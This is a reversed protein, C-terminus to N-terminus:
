APEHERLSHDKEPMKGPEVYRAAFWELLMRHIFIYGGGVKRLLIRDAAYNLFRVYNFPASGNCVIALRLVLHKLCAEGGAPLGLGLGGSLGCCLGAVLGGGLGGAMAGGLGGVMAGGLGGVLGSVLGVVLGGGLGIGLGVVLANRASRRIGQNPVTRTEIESVSLRSEQRVFVGVAVGGVMGSLLGFSVGGVWGGILVGSIAANLGIALMITMAWILYFHSEKLSWHLIEACIIDQDQLLKDQESVMGFALWGCYMAGVLGGVMAGLPGLALGGAMGLAVGAFLGFILGIVLRNCVGIFRRQREPLWDRQLRELYFVTQGHNAMQRALWGLWQVMRKPMYRCEAARRELTQNVYAGFLHNRRETLTGSMPPPKERLGAYTMTVVNLLLPSDLLEWLSPDQQLSERVPEGAPGLETLYTNVQEGTLHQVLIAGQLRLPEALGEYDATRSTIVLSLLGHSQRFANIAEVCVVRQEAKVEDLGDLLPLVQDSAVWEHATESPVDYRLNLEDALWEVLPKRSAAWTSLPFVVPIAHAPDNAARDLLDRALELLLTTKGSGPAGLILLSRDMSDYVDVVQTGSPLPREGQDPRRVLLDLPRAVADPRESLGLLIRTEQFRSQRLFGTVWITRVKEIMATRNRNAQEVVRRTRGALALKTVDMKGHKILAAMLRKRAADDKSGLFDVYALHGILRPLEVPAVLVPLILGDTGLPDAALAAHLEALCHKSEFYKPSLVAITCDSEAALMMNHSFSTGEAFDQDQHIANHGADRVVGAILEAWRKDAGARSIFFTKKESM